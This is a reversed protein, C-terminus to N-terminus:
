TAIGVPIGGPPELGHQYRQYQSLATRKQRVRHDVATDAAEQCEGSYACGISCARDLPQSQVGGGGRSDAHGAIFMSVDPVDGDVMAAMAQIIPIASPKVESSATDFFTNEPFVIRLVPIDYYFDSPMFRRPVVYSHFEPEPYVGFTQALRKLRSFRTQHELALAEEDSLYTIQQASAPVSVVVTPALALMCAAILLLRPGLERIRKFVQMPM